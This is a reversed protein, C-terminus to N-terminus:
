CLIQIHCPSSVKSLSTEPSPRVLLSIVVLSLRGRLRMTFTASMSKLILLFRETGSQLLSPSQSPVVSPVGYISSLWLSLWIKTRYRLKYLLTPHPSLSPEVLVPLSRRVFSSLPLLSLPRSTYLHSVVTIDSMSDSILLASKCLGSVVDL